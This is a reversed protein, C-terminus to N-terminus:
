SGHRDLVAGAQFLALEAAERSTFPALRAAFRSSRVAPDVHHASADWAAFLDGMEAHTARMYGAAATTTLRGTM